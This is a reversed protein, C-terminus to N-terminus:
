RRLFEAGLGEGMQAAFGKLGGGEGVHQPLSPSLPLFPADSM